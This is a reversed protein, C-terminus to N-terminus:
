NKLFEKWDKKQKLHKSLSETLKEAQDFVGAYAGLYIIAEELEAASKPDLTLVEIQFKHLKETIEPSPSSKAIILDPQSTILEGFNEFGTELVSTKEKLGLQTLLGLLDPNLLAIRQPIWSM